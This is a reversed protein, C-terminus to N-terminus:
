PHSGSKPPPLVLDKIASTATTPQQGRQIIQVKKKENLAGKGLWSDLEKGVLPVYKPLNSQQLYDAPGRVVKGGNQYRRNEAWDRALFAEQKIDDAISAWPAVREGIASAVSGQSLKAISYRNMGFLGLMSNIAYEMPSSKKNQVADKLAQVFVNGATLFVTYGAMWFAADKARGEKLADYVNSRISSLQRTMYSTLAYATKGLPGAANWSQPREGRSIPQVDAVANYILFRSNEDLKGEKGFEPKALSGLMQDWEKPFMRSFKRTINETTAAPSLVNAEPDVAMEHMRIRAANGLGEKGATDAFGIAIKMIKGMTRDFRSSDRLFDKTEIQGEHIGMDEISTFNKPKLSEIRTMKAAANQLAKGYGIIGAKPGYHFMNLYADSLQNISASIDGVYALTVGKGIARNAAVMWPDGKADNFYDNFSKVIKAQGDPNIRGALVEQAMVSGIPTTPTDSFVAPKDPDVKGFFERTTVDQAARNLYMDVAVDVPQFYKYTDKTLLDLTRQKLYGPKGRAMWASEYIFKSVAASQEEETLPEGKKAEAAKLVEDVLGGEEKKLFKMLGKFDSVIHPFYQDLGEYEEGPRTRNIDALVEDRVQGWGSDLKAMMAEGGAHTSALVYAEHVKGSLLLTSWQDFDKGLISRAEKFAPMAARTWDIARDGATSLYKRWVGAVPPSIQRINDTVVGLSRIASFLHGAGRMLPNKSDVLGTLFPEYIASNDSAGADPGAGVEEAKAAIAPDDLIKLTEPKAPPQSPGQVEPNTWARELAELHAQRRAMDAPSGKGEIQATPQAVEQTAGQDVQHAQGVGQGNLPPNSVDVPSASQKQVANKFSESPEYISEKGHHKSVFDNLEEYIERLRKFDQRGLAIAAEKGLEGAKTVPLNESEHSQAYEEGLAKLDKRAQEIRAEIEPGMEKRALEYGEYMPTTQYKPNDKVVSYEANGRLGYEIEQELSMRGEEPFLLRGLKRLKEPATSGTLGPEQLRHSLDGVHELLDNYVAPGGKKQSELVVKMMTSEPIGRQSEAAARLDLETPIRTNLKEIAKVPKPAEVPTEPAVRTVEPKLPAQIPLIGADKAPLDLNNKDQVEVAFMKTPKGAEQVEPMVVITGDSDRLLIGEAQATKVKTGILDNITPGTEQSNPKGQANFAEGKVIEALKTDAAPVTPEDKVGLARNVLNQETALKAVEDQRELVKIMSEASEAASKIPAAPTTDVFEGEPIGELINPKAEVPQFGKLESQSLAIKNADFNAEVPNGKTQTSDVQEVLSPGKALSGHLAAASMGASVVPNLFSAVRESTPKTPDPVVVSAEGAQAGAEKAMLAAFIGGATKALWAPGTALGGLLALNQPTTLSSLAPAAANYVGKGVNGLNLIGLSGLIRQAKATDEDSSDDVPLNILPKDKDFSAFPGSGIKNLANIRAIATEDASQPKQAAPEADVFSGVPEADVFPM